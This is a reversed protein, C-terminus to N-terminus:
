HGRTGRNKSKGHGTTSGHGKRGHGTTASSSSSSASQSGDVASTPNKRAQSGAKYYLSLNFTDSRLDPVGRVTTSGLDSCEPPLDFNSNIPAQLSYFTITQVLPV